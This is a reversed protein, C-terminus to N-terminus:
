WPKKRLTTQFKCNGPATAALLSVVRDSNVLYLPFADKNNTFDVLDDASTAVPLVGNVTSSDVYTDTTCKMLLTQGQQWSCTGSTPAATSSPAGTATNVSCVVPDAALAESAYATITFAALCAVLFLTNKLM